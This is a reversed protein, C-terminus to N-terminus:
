PTKLPYSEPKAFQLVNQEIAWEDIIGLAHLQEMANKLRLRFNSLRKEKSRSLAHIKDISIRHPRERTARHSCCYLHLYKALPSSLKDRDEWLIKTYDQDDFLAGIERNLELYYRQNEKDYIFAGILQGSYIFKQTEIEITAQQLRKLTDKLWRRDSSGNTRNLTKLFEYLSFEVRDGIRRERALNLATMWVDADSQTLAEGSYRITVGSWSALVEEHMRERAGRMMAGFLASRIITNPSIREQDEWECLLSLQQPEDSGQLHIDDTSRDRRHKARQEVQRLTIVPDNKSM